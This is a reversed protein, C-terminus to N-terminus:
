DGDVWDFQDFWKHAKLSAFTSGNKRSEPNRSLLLEILSQAPKNEPIQFYAPYGLKQTMVKQYIDYPDEFDEGFPVFGCMFEYL